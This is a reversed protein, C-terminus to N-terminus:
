ERQIAEVPTLRSARLAPYLGAGLGIGIAAIATLGLSPATVAVYLPAETQARIYATVAFAGSFGLALGVATGILAITISEVLFQRRIDRRRAGVAKRVGIERTRELISALLVNMIGIGGVILSIATFAGMLLKFVLIGRALQELREQGLAQVIYRGNWSQASAYREVAERVAPVREVQEVHVAISRPRPATVATMSRDAGTFPVLVAFFRETPNAAIIGVVQRAGGDLALMEGVRGGPQGLRTLEDALKQSIVVVDAGRRSEDETIARGATPAPLVNSPLHVGLVGRVRVARPRDGAISVSGTGDMTLQVGIGPGAAALLGDATGVDFLPFGSLPVRLGDQTADTQPRLVILQM